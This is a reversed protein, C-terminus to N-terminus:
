PNPSRTSTSPNEPQQHTLVCRTTIYSAKGWQRRAHARELIPRCEDCVKPQPDSM